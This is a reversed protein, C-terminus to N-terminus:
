VKVGVTNWGERVANAEAGAHGFLQQASLLTVHAFQRFSSNPRLHGSTLSNYWIRGAREWANGGIQSAILFFARNPIGSNTHVGGNDSLTHVFGSMNGPQPDKGLTPDNFATGPAKMSRLAVGGVGAALLGAGILWDAKDATQGLKFQKILSGFVDSISENLAGSQQHYQLHADHETVGHTLEHGIVDLAITFRNFLVGDGDGFVMQAGNWFANDYQQDFHVSAVLPLGANDISNRGFVEAYFAYTAGLGEYAENAAIDGSAPQGESRLLTGPLNQTNNATYVTREVQPTATAHPMSLGRISSAALQTTARLSRFTNDISHTQLAADRQSDSGNRAINDLIYPPLITHRLAAGPRNHGTM